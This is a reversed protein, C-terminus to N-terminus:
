RKRIFSDPHNKKIDTIAKEAEAHAKFEGVCIQYYGGGLIIFPKYGKKSLKILEKQASKKSRYAIVQVTFMENSKKPKEKPAEILPEDM